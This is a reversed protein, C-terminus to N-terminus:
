RDPMSPGYGGEAPEVTVTGALSSALRSSTSVANMVVLAALALM